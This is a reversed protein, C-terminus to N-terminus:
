KIALRALSDIFVFSKSSDEAGGDYRGLFKGERNFLFTAPVGGNPNKEGTLQTIFEEENATTRPNLSYSGKVAWNKEPIQMNVLIKKAYDEQKSMVRDANVLIWELHQDKYKAEIDKLVQMEHRCPICWSAWCTIMTPAKRAKVYALAEEGSKRQLEFSPKAQKRFADQEDQSPAVTGFAFLVIFFLVTLTFLVGISILGIRLAKKIGPTM